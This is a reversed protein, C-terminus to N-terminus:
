GSFVLKGAHMSYAQMSPAWIEASNPQILSILADISDPYYAPGKQAFLDGPACLGAHMCGIHKHACVLIETLNPRILSILTDISDPSLALVRQACM